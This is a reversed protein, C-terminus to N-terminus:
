VCNAEARHQELEEVQAQLRHVQVSLVQNDVELIEIYAAIQCIEDARNDDGHNEYAKAIEVLTDHANSM